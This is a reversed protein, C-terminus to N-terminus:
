PAVLTTVLSAQHMTAPKSNGYSLLAACSSSAPM